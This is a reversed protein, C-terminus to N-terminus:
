YRCHAPHPCQLALKCTALDVLEQIDRACRGCCEDDNLGLVEVLREAEVIGAQGVQQIDSETLGRCLCVYM